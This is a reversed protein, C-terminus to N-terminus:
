NGTDWVDFGVVNGQGDTISSQRAHGSIDSSISLSLYDTSWTGTSSSKWNTYRFQQHNTSSGPVPNHTDHVESYYQSETPWPYTSNWKMNSDPFSTIDYWTSNDPSYSFHWYMTAQDLGVKYYEGGTPHDGTTLRQFTSDGIPWWEAFRTWNTFGYPWFLGAQMYGSSTNNWANRNLVMSWSSTSSGTSGCPQTTTQNTVYVRAGIVWGSKSTGAGGDFHSAIQPDCTIAGVRAPTSAPGTLLLLVAVFGAMLAQLFREKM